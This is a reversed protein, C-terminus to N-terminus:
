GMYAFQTSGSWVGREVSWPRCQKSLPIEIQFLIFIFIRITQVKPPCNSNQFNAHYSRLWTEFYVFDFWFIKFINLSTPLLKIYIFPRLNTECYFWKEKLKTFKVVMINVNVPVNRLTITPSINSVEIFHKHKMWDWHFKTQINKLAKQVCNLLNLPFIYIRLVSKIRWVQTLKQGIFLM